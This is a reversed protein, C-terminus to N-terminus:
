TAGLMTRHTERGDTPRAGAIVDALIQDLSITPRWGIAATIKHTDPVRRPMDEFGEGYAEAYPIRVIESGSGSAAKIKGALELMSVEETSGINFVEGYADERSALDALARVVDRVHCFCRRQEGTGYVTIPQSALAQRVFTPVVMGYRGTQRSGVTNFM